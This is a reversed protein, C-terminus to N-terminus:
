GLAKIDIRLNPYKKICFEKLNELFKKSPSDINKFNPNVLTGMDYRFQQLYWRCHLNHILDAIELVDEKKYILSPVITTRIEIELKNEHEKLIALTEHLSDLVEETTKFFTKSQTAKEFLELSLPAKIDLGIFDLMNEKLLSSIVHPKSGNTELGVKLGLQKVYAALHALATPQLCPEGGSFLVGDIFGINKHLEAKIDKVDKLFEEKFEVISGNYCFPCKFDCGAFFVVTCINKPWDVTSIPIIGGIHAQM